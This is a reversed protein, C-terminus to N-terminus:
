PGAQIVEISAADSMALGSTRGGRGGVIYRSMGGTQVFASAAQDFVPYVFKDTLPIVGQLTGAYPVGDTGAWLPVPALVGQLHLVEAPAMVMSGPIVGAACAVTVSYSDISDGQLVYVKKRTAVYVMFQPSDPAAIMTIEDPLTLSNGTPVWLGYYMSQTWVVRRGLAGLIRGAKGLLHTAAPFPECFQTTLVRTRTGAGVLFQAVGPM